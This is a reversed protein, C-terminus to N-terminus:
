RCVPSHHKRHRKWSRSRPKPIDDWDNPLHAPRRRGRVRPRLEPPECLVAYYQRIENMTHPHRWMKLM